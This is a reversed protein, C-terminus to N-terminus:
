KQVMITKHGLVTQEDQLQVQYVGYNLHGLLIRVQNSGVEIPFSNKEIQQGLSNYISLNLDFRTDSVFEFQAMDKTPNPYVQGIHNEDWVLRELESYAFRGDLDIQKLRYITEFAMQGEDMFAYTQPQESFGAAEVEGIQEFLSGDLSKEIAFYASNEERVTQWSLTAGRGPLKHAQFSLGEVPFISSCITGTRDLSALEVYYTGNNDTTWVDASVEFDASPDSPTIRFLTVPVGAAWSAGFASMALSGFGAFKQYASGGSVTTGGAFAMPIYALIDTPASFTVTPDDSRITLQINSVLGSFTGDPTITIALDPGSADVCSSITPQAYGFFCLLFFVITTYIAKM